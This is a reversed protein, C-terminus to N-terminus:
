IPRGYLLEFASLKSKDRPALQQAPLLRIWNEQTELCLKALN